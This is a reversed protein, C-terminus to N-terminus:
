STDGFDYRNGQVKPFLFEHSGWFLEGFCTTLYICGGLSPKSLCIYRMCRIVIGDTKRPLNNVLHPFAYMLMQTRRGKACVRWQVAFSSLVKFTYHRLCYECFVISHVTSTGVRNTLTGPTTCLMLANPNSTHSASMRLSQWRQMLLHNMM